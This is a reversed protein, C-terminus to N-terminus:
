IRASKLLEVRHLFSVFSSGHTAHTKKQQHEMPSDFERLRFSLSLHKRPKDSAGDFGQPNSSNSVTFFVLLLLGM